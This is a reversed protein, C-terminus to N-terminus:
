GGLGALRVDDDFATMMVAGIASWDYSDVATRRGGAELRTRLAGDRLVELVAKAFDPPTDAVLMNEGPRVDLGEAGQSTSVVAKGLAWADLIKLRTGGGVRLPVVFCAAPTVHDRIDDVYGTMTVGQEALRRRTADAARGVWTVDVGPAEARILPLIEAVFYEMGDRNPFWTYGGVFVIDSRPGPPGPQFAETDVGNPVVLTRAAPALAQLTREDDASVVLNHSVRPCWRAEERRTLWAQLRVYLRRLMPLTRARRALLQSEVNHHAVVVRLDRFLPLYTVLDLSDLHVVDVSGADLAETIARRMDRSEYAWKTYARLTLVSRAHDWLLRLVNHEQPIPFVEVDALERLGALSAEVEQRTPRNAQRYFCLATVEFREALLRLTHYSRILAGGDPPYPLNQCLFLLRPRESDPTV